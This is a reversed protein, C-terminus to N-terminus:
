QEYFDKCVCYAKGWPCQSPEYNCFEIHWTGIPMYQIHGRSWYDRLAKYILRSPINVSPIDASLNFVKWLELIGKNLKEAQEDTLKEVPPLQEFNIGLLQSLPTAQLDFAVLHPLGYEVAPHDPYLIEYDIPLPVNQKAVELDALLQNIYKEM